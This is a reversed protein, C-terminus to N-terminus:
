PKVQVPGPPVLAGAVTGTVAVAGSPVIAMEEILESVPEGILAVHLKAPLTALGHAEPDHVPVDCVYV